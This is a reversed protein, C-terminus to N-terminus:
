ERLGTDSLREDVRCTILWKIGLALGLYCKQKMGISFGRIMVRWLSQQLNRKKMALNSFCARGLENQGYIKLMKRINKFSQGTKQYEAKADFFSAFFVTYWILDECGVPLTEHHSMWNQFTQAIGLWCKGSDPNYRYSVSMENKRYVYGAEEIFGYRAGICYCQMNFLKDEGYHFKSFKLQNKELFSKKYLKGWAYSLTGVSFFGCFRFNETDRAYRSFLIHSAAPLIRKNWLRVYNSVFIDADTQRAVNIYREFVRADPLYDDADLFLVYEGKAAHLGLNRANGIGASGNYLTYINEYKEAYFRSIEQSKDDSDSVVLYLEWNQYNQTRVSEVAEELYQECNYVPVIVSIIGNEGTMVTEGSEDATSKWYDM